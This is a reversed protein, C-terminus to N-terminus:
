ANFIYNKSLEILQYPFLKCYIELSGIKESVQQIETSIVPTRETVKEIQIYKDGKKFGKGDKDRKKETEVEKISEKYTTVEVEKIESEFISLTQKKNKNLDTYDLEATYRKGQASFSFKKIKKQKKQKKAM